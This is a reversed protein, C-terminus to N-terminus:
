ATPDRSFLDLVSPAITFKRRMGGELLEDEIHFRHVNM